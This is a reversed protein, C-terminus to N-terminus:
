HHKGNKRNDKDHSMTMLIMKLIERAAKSREDPNGINKLDKSLESILRSLNNTIVLDRYALILKEQPKFILSFIFTVFASSGFIAAQIDLKLITYIILLVIFALLASYTVITLILFTIWTVRIQRSEFDLNLRERLDNLNEADKLINKADIRRKKAFESIVMGIDSAPLETNM